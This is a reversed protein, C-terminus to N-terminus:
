KLISWWFVSILFGAGIFFITLLIEASIGLAANWVAKAFRAMQSYVIKM